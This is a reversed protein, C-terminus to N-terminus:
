CQSSYIYADWEVFIPVPTLRRSWERGEKGERGAKGVM